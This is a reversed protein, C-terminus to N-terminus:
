TGTVVRNRGQEKARYLAKDAAWFLAEADQAHAPYAVVGFSATVQQPGEGAPHPAIAALAIRIAEARARADEAACEPLLLVMEEGGYRCAIDGERIGLRLQQAITRLVADGVAHGYDDNVRKFHDIDVLVLSVPVNKRRARALERKLAADFHRRNFLGTLPDLVSQRRLSERLRANGLALALQEAVTVALHEQEELAPGAALGELHLMGVLDDHTVLPICLRGAAEDAPKRYHACPLDASSATRYRAGHRLSWCSEIEIEPPQDSPTGWQSHRDLMHDDEDRLLFLTGSVGPLLKPLSRAIVPAADPVSPVAEVARLLEAVQKLERNHRTTLAVADALQGAQTELQGAVVRRARLMRMAVLLLIGLVIVNCATAAVSVAFSRASRALLEAQLGDHRAMSRADEAAVIRRMDDMYQKGRLSSVVRETAEFGARRRLQITEDLEALKLEALRAVRWVTAREADTRAKDKADRLVGPLMRKVREYPELFVDNGTIVFGRQATEADRMATLIDDLRQQALLEARSQALLVNVSRNLWFPVAAILVMVIFVALAVFKLHRASRM